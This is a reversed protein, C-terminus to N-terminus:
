KREVSGNTMHFIASRLKFKSSRVVRSLSHMALRDKPYRIALYRERLIEREMRLTKENKKGGVDRLQPM